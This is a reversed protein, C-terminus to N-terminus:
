QVVPRGHGSESTVFAVKVKAEVASASAVIAAFAISAGIKLASRFM